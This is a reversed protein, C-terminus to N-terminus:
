KAAYFKVDVTSFKYKKGTATEVIVPYSTNRPKLGVLKCKGLTPHTFGNQIIDDSIGYMQAFRVLDTYENTMVKGSEGKEAFEVKLTTSTDTYNGGRNVVTLEPFEKELIAMMRERIQKVRNKDM